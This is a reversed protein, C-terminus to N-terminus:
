ISRDLTIAISTIVFYFSIDSAGSLTVFEANIIQCVKGLQTFSALYFNLPLWVLRSALM